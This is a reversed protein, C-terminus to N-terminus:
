AECRLLVRASACLIYQRTRTYVMTNISIINYYLCSRSFVRTWRRRTEMCICVGVYVDNVFTRTRTYTRSGRSTDGRSAGGSSDEGRIRKILRARALTSVGGVVKRRVNGLVSCDVAVRLVYRYIIIDYYTNYQVCCL